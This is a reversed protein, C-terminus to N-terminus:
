FFVFEDVLKAMWGLETELETELVAASAIARRELM